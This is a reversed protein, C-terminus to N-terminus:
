NGIQLTKLDGDSTILLYEKDVTAVPKPPKPPNVVRLKVQYLVQVVPSLVVPNIVFDFEKNPVSKYYSTRSKSANNVNAAKKLDLSSRAFAQYSQYQEIPYHVQYGEVMQKYLDEFNVDLLGEFRAIKEKVVEAAKTAIEKKKADLDNCIYDVKVLDYIESETCISIFDSLMESNTYKIHINKKLEFGKPIENYTNKSFLKKELEYEYMPVFSLMDVFIEAKADKAKVGTKVKEIKENLLENVEKTTKGVQTIHFIAVYADAKLNIMGNVEIILDNTRSMPVDFTKAPTYTPYQQYNVNGSAYNVNGSEQAM